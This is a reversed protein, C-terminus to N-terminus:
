EPGRRQRRRPKSRLVCDLMPLRPLHLGLLADIEAENSDPRVVRALKVAEDGVLAPDVSDFRRRRASM